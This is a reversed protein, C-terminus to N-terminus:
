SSSIHPTLSKSAITTQRCYRGSQSSWTSIKHESNRVRFLPFIERKRFITNCCTITACDHMFKHLQLLIFSWASRQVSLEYSLQLLPHLM